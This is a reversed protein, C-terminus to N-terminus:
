EEIDLVGKNGERDMLDCPCVLLSGGEENLATWSIAAHTCCETLGDTLYLGILSGM